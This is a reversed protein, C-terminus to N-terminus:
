ANCAYPTVSEYFIVIIHNNNIVSLTSRNNSMTTNKYGSKSQKLLTNMKPMIYNTRNYLIQRIM